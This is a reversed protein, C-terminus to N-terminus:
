FDRILYLNNTSYDKDMTNSYIKINNQFISNKFQKLIRDVSQDSDRYINIDLNLRGSLKSIYEIKNIYDSGNCSLFLEDESEKKLRNKINIADIAGECINIKIPNLDELNLNNRIAYIDVDNTLKMKFYRYKSTIPIYRFSIASGNFNLFGITNLELEDLISLQYKNLSLGYTNVFDKISLIIRYKNLDIDNDINYLRSYIYNVKNPYISKFLNFNYNNFRLLNKSNQIINIKKLSNSFSMKVIKSILEIDYINIDELLRKNVIGTANCEARKCQYLFTNDSQGIYFHGKNLHKRSDGCYPCRIIIENSSQIFRCYSNDLHRKIIEYLSHIDM